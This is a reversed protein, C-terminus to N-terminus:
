LTCIGIGFGWGVGGKGWRDAKTAMLKNRLRHSKKQKTSSNM